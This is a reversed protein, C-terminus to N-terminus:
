RVLTGKYSLIGGRMETVDLGLNTLQRFASSTRSGSRCYIFLRKGEAVELLQPIFLPSYFDINIANEIHGSAYEEPTRIDVLLVNDTKYLEVIFPHQTHVDNNNIATKNTILAADVVTPRTYWFWTM